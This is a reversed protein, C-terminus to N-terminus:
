ASDVLPLSTKMPSSHGNLIILGFVSLIVLPLFILPALWLSVWLGGKVDEHGLVFFAPGVNPTTVVPSNSKGLDSWCRHLRSNMRCIIESEAVDFKLLDPDDDVLNDYSVKSGSRAVLAQATPAEMSSTDVKDEKPPTTHAM